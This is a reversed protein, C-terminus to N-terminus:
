QLELCEENVKIMKIQCMNCFLMECVNCKTKFLFSMHEQLGFTAKTAGGQRHSARQRVSAGSDYAIACYGFAKVQLTKM